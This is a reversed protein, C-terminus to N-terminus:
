KLLDNNEIEIKRIKSMFDEEKLLSVGEIYFSTFLYKYDGNENIPVTKNALMVDVVRVNEIGVCAPIPFYRRLATKITDGIEIKTQISKKKPSQKPTVIHVCVLYGDVTTEALFIYGSQLSTIDLIRFSYVSDEQILFAKNNSIIQCKKNDLPDILPEKDQQAMVPAIFSFFLATFLITKLNMRSNKQPKSNATRLYTKNKCM